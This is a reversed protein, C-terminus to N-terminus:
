GDFWVQTWILHHADNTLMLLLAVFPIIGLLAWSRRTVRKVGAYELALALSTLGQPVMLAFWVQRWFTMLALDDSALELANASNALVVLSASLAFPTAGAVGRHRWAYVALVLMMAASLLLPLIDSSFHYSGIM